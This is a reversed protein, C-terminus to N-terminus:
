ETKVNKCISFSSSQNKSVKEVFYGTGVDVLVHDVDHLKGPVYM